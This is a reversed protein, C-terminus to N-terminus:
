LKPVDRCLVSRVGEKGDHSFLPLNGKKKVEVVTRIREGDKLIPGWLSQLDLRTRAGYGEGRGEIEGSQEM